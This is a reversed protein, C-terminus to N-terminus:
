TTNVQVNNNNTNELMTNSGVASSAIQSTCTIEVLGGSQNRILLAKSTGSNNLISINGNSNLVALDGSVNAIGITDPSTPNMDLVVTGSSPHNIGIGSDVFVPPVSSSFVPIDGPAGTGIIPPVITAPSVLEIQTGASNVQPIKLGDGSLSPPINGTNVDLLDKFYSVSINM